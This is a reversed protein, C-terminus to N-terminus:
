NTFLSAAFDNVGIDDAASTASLLGNTQRQKSVLVTIFCKRRESANGAAFIDPRSQNTAVSVRRSLGVSSVFM